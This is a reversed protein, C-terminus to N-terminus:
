IQNNLPTGLDGRGEVEAKIKQFRTYFHEVQHTDLKRTLSLRHRENIRVGRHILYNKLKKALKDGAKDLDVMLVVDKHTAAIDDCVEVLPRGVNIPYIRGEIGLDELAAVDNKGEVIIPAHLSIESLEELEELISEYELYNM